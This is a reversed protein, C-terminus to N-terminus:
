RKEDVVELDYNWINHGITGDQFLIDFVKNTTTECLPERVEKIILGVMGYWQRYYCKVLFGVKMKYGKVSKDSGMCLSRM